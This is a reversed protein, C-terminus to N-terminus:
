GNCKLWGQLALDADHRSGAHPWFMALLACSATLAVCRMFKAGDVNPSAGHEAWVYGGPDTRHHSPPVVVQQGTWMVEVITDRERTDTPMKFKFKKGEMAQANSVVHYWSHSNPASARGHRMESHPLFFEAAREAEPQDYDACVMNGSEKGTGIGLENGQEGLYKDLEAPTHHLTPWGTILPEKEGKQVVVVLMGAEQYGRAAEVMRLHGNQISM